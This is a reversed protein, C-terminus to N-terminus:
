VVVAEELDRIVVSVVGMAGVIIEGKEEAQAYVTVLHTLVLVIAAEEQEKKNLQHEGVEIRITTNTRVILVAVAIIIIVPM